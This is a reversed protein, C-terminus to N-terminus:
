PQDKKSRQLSHFQTKHETSCFKADARRTSNVGAEFVIGCHACVRLHTGEALRSAMQTWMAQLLNRPACELRLRGTNPDVRLLVDLKTVRMGAAGIRRALETDGKIAHGIWERMSEAHELAEDIDEGGNADLGSHTLPAYNTVFTLLSGPSTVSGAFVRYLGDPPTWPELRGGARVIRGPQGRDAGLLTRPPDGRKPKSPPVAPILRYGKPDRHWILTSSLTTM